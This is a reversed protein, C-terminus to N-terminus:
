KLLMMKERFIERNGEKDLITMVYFYLGSAFQRAHWTAEHRGAGLEGEVLTAVQQGLVNYVQLSVRAARPLAFAIRTSPNFPNPYNQYLAFAEPLGIRLTMEKTLLHRTPTTVDFLLTAVEGAPADSAVSFAFRATKTGGREISSLVVESAELDLWAPVQRAVVRVQKLAHPLTNSLDIELTNGSSAPLVDHVASSELLVAEEVGPETESGKESPAEKQRAAFFPRRRAPDYRARERDLREFFPQLPDGAYLARQFESVLEIWLSEPFFARSWALDAEAMKRAKNWLKMLPVLGPSLPIGEDEAWQSSEEIYRWAEESMENKWLSFLDAETQAAAGHTLASLILLISLIRM